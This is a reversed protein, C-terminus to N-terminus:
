KFAEVERMIEWWSSMDATHVKGVIRFGRVTASASGTFTYTQGSVSSSNYAYVPSVSWGSNVWTVGDTTFQLALSSDYAGDGSSAIWSGQVFKVSGLTQPSLWIVGGAEYRNLNESPGLAVDNSLNGDNLGPAKAKNANSTPSSLSHWSYAAGSRALNTPPTVANVTVLFASSITSTGNADADFATFSHIGNIVNSAVFSWNGLTNVPAVGLDTNGDYVTVVSSAEATGNLTIMSTTDVGNTNPSFSVIVPPPPPPPTVANVTVPFVSSMVSTGNTDTNTATFSHVGNAANNEIISWNGLTDATTFGLNVGGDYVTVTSGSEATGSLVIMRTTDVGGTNPSFSSIGPPSPPPPPPGCTFSVNPTGADFRAKAPLTYTTGTSPDVWPWQCASGFFAPAAGLYMSNPMPQPSGLPNTQTGGIGLWTQTQTYWDWNGQRLQTQYTNAVWDWSGPNQQAGIYYMIVPIHNWDSVNVSGDLDDYVWFTQTLSVTSNSYNLLSQGRFGLVNGVLNTRFSHAQINVATRGLYDGYPFRTTGQLSTYTNLPPHAARLASLQNRFVTIDISNGWFADGQYNQSYNGELLEMHPTTYHGANLGAESSEPYSSGFSDDMYNYAAVNGGGTARMVIEKNGSWMINNEVLNDSAGYNLGVLYGAGGPNPDPTEHIFSDRLESRYTAYLGVDTGVSWTAEIHKIWCYACGNMDINGHWDGGEGGFFFIDEIGIGRAMPSGSRSLQAQEATAFAHHFPTAFTIMNGNVATVEMLQNISRDQRMFWRRSGGGPPDMALGWWVDPDNNTIEDILVIEGVQIGPNSVLTLQNSGQAVDAALNFSTSINLGSGAYLIAYSVNTARDAKILQTATSDPV